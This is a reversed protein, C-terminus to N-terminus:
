NLSKLYAIVNERQSQKKLGVFSMKTGPFYKKPNEFFRNLAEEDWLVDSSTMAKSYNFGEVKGAVSGYVGYLTPGVKNKGAEIAHCSKCKRFTKKGKEPDGQPFTPVACVTLVLALTVSKMEQGGDVSRRFFKSVGLITHCILDVPREDFICGIHVYLIAINTAHCISKASQSEKGLKLVFLLCILSVSTLVGYIIVRTKGDRHRVNKVGAPVIKRDPTQRPRLDPDSALATKAKQVPWDPLIAFPAAAVRHAPWTDM